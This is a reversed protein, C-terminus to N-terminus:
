LALILYSVQNLLIFSVIMTSPASAAINPAIQITQNAYAGGLLSDEEAQTGKSYIVM